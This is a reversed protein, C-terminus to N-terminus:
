AYLGVVSWSGDALPRVDIVYQEGDVDCGQFRWGSWSGSFPHTIADPILVDAATIRTPTDSVRYRRGLWTLAIPVGQEDTDLSTTTRRIPAPAPALVTM